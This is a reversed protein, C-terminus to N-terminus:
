QHPLLVVDVDRATPSVSGPAASSSACPPHLGVRNTFCWHLFRDRGNAGCAPCQSLESHQRGAFSDGTWRCINCIVGTSEPLPLWPPCAPDPHPAAAPEAAAHPVVPTPEAAVNADSPQDAAAPGGDGLLRRGLEGVKRYSRGAISRAASRLDTNM